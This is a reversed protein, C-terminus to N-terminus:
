GREARLSTLVAIGAANDASYAPPAFIGGFRKSLAARLLTNSMVGGAYVVPLDGYAALLRETMSELAAQVHLLCLRAVEDPPVGQEILRRCQNEVGSLHCNAGEMSPHPLRMETATQSLKDLEAGAPFPLGLLVGIRDILQGAKLDLSRAVSTCTIVTDAHPRVLLAETTGGSVHFALFPAKLLDLRKAGYLAAMVHGQQHTFRFLPRCSSAALARAMGEGALFCPMYSNDAEMPRDSVGFAAIDQKSVTSFLQELLDPLQKVHHFVADSQRLGREGAKVPLLQKVQWLAETAADFAAASTTYNSTDLGMYLSMDRVMVDPLAAWYATLLLRM